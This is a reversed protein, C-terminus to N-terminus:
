EFNNGSTGFFDEVGKDFSEQEDSTRIVDEDSILLVYLKPKEYEIRGM